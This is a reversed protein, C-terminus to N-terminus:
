LRLKRLTWKCGLEWGNFLYFGMRATRAQRIMATETPPLQELIKGLRAVARAKDEMTMRSRIRTLALFYADMLAPSRTNLQAYILTRVANVALSRSLEVYNALSSLASIQERATFVSDWNRAVECLARYAASQEVGESGKLKTELILGTAVDRFDLDALGGSAGLSALLIPILFIRFM